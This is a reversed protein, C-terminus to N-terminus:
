NRGIGKYKVGLSKINEPNLCNRGDVVLKLKALKQTPYEIIEAHATCVLLVDAWEILVDLSVVDSDLLIYPDFAKVMAKKEIKL